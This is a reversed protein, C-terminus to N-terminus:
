KLFCFFLAQFVQLNKSRVSELLPHLFEDQHLDRLGSTNPSSINITIYDAQSAVVSFADLYDEIANDITELSIEDLDLDEISRGARTLDQVFHMLGKLLVEQQLGFELDSDEEESQKKLDKCLNDLATADLHTFSSLRSNFSCTAVNCCVTANEFGVVELAKTM